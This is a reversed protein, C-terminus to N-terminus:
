TNCKTERENGLYARGRQYLFDMPSNLGTVKKESGSNSYLQTYCMIERNNFVTSKGKLGCSEMHEFDIDSNSLQEIKSSRYEIRMPPQDLPSIQGNLLYQAFLDVDLM